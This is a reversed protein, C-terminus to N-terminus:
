ARSATGRAAASPAALRSRGGAVAGAAHSRLLEAQGQWTPHNFSLDAADASLRSEDASDWSRQLPRDRVFTGRGTEGIVLGMSQLQAYVRTATAIAIGHRAALERHTPLLTGPPLRGSRIEDALSDVLRAVKSTM